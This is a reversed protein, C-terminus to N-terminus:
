PKSWFLNDRSAVTCRLRIKQDGPSLVFAETECLSIRGEQVDQSAAGRARSFETRFTEVDVSYGNPNRLWFEVYLVLDKGARANEDVALMCTDDMPGFSSFNQFIYRELRIPGPEHGCLNLQCVAYEEIETPALVAAIIGLTIGIICVFCCCCSGVLIAPKRWAM